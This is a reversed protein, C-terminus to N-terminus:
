LTENTNERLFKNYYDYACKEVIERAEEATGGKFYWGDYVQIVNWGRRVMEAYANLYACSEHIFVASRISEGCVKQMRWRAEDIMTLLEEDSMGEAVLGKRRLHALISVASNDFYLSMCFAKFANRDERSNFKFGAIKEYLDISDPLWEGTRRLYAVRYISSTVDYSEYDKGLRDELIEKLWPGNYNENENPHVKASVLPNTIRFGIKTITGNDSRRISPMVKIQREAPLIKNLEIATEMAIRIQPYRVLLVYLVEEDTLDKSLATRQTIDINLGCSKKEVSKALNRDNVIELVSRMQHICTVNCVIGEKKCLKSIMQEASKNWAYRKSYSQGAFGTFRYTENICKLLGVSVARHIANSVNQHTGFVDLTNKASTAIFFTSVRKKSALHKFLEVLALVSRISDRWKRGLLAKVEEETYQPFVTDDYNGCTADDQHEEAYNPKNSRVREAEKALAIVGTNYEENTM